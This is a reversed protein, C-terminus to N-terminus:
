IMSVHFLEKFVGNSVSPLKLVRAAKLPKMMIFGELINSTPRCITKTTVSYEVGVELNSDFFLRLIDQSELYEFKESVDLIELNKANLDLSKIQELVKFCLESVVVTHDDYVDFDLNMHLVQIKLDGFDEPYYKFERM